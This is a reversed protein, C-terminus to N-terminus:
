LIEADKRAKVADNYNDFTGLHRGALRAEWKAKSKNWYVGKTGSTNNLSRANLRQESQTAWRVNGPEYNGDNNIRDISHQGSPRKGVDALFAQFDDKWKDCVKIGRAGYYKYEKKNTNYCREKMGQWASYEASSKKAGGNNSMGHTKNHVYCGCSRFEDDNLRSARRSVQKGCKCECIYYVRGTRTNDRHLVTLWGYTNGTKDALKNVM